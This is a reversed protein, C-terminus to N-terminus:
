QNLIKNRGSKRTYRPKPGLTRIPRQVRARRIRDTGSGKVACPLLSLHQSVIATLLPWLVPERKLALCRTHHPILPKQISWRPRVGHLDSSIHDRHNRPANHKHCLLRPSLLRLPSSSSFNSILTIVLARVRSVAVFNLLSRFNQRLLASIDVSSCATL